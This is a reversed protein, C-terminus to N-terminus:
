RFLQSEEQIGFVDFEDNVRLRVHNKGVPHLGFALIRPRLVNEPHTVEYDRSPLFVTMKGVRRDRVNRLLGPADPLWDRASRKLGLKTPPLHERM